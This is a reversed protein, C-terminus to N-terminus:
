TVEPVKPLRAVETLFVPKNSYLFTRLGAGGNSDEWCDNKHDCYSCATALKMNGSKGDPVSDFERDPPEDAELLPIKTDWEAILQDQTLHEDLVLERLTGLTKDVALFAGQTDGDHATYAQLQKEYGFDDNARLMGVSDFKKMGYSSSSKVDYTIGDIRADKRGSVTWGNALPIEMREQQHTVEHGSAEALFLVLEEILDGFMFKMKTSAGLPETAYDNSRLRYWLKRLCPTGIESAYLKKEDLRNGGHPRPTLQREVAVSMKYGLDNFQESLVSGDSLGSLLLAEISERVNPM